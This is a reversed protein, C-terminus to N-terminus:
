YIGKRVARNYKDLGPSTPMGRSRRKGLTRGSMWSARGGSEDGDRDRSSSRQISSSASVMSWRKRQREQASENGNAGSREDVSIYSTRKGNVSKLDSPKIYEGVQLFFNENRSARKSKDHQANGSGKTGSREDASMYSTRESYMSGPDSPKIYKGVQLFFNETRSVPRPATSIKSVSIVRDKVAARYGAEMEEMVRSTETQHIIKNSPRVGYSDYTKAAAARSEALFNQYDSSEDDPEFALPRIAVTHSPQLATQSIQNDSPDNRDLNPKLNTRSFDTAAHNPV